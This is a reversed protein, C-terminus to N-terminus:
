SQGLKKGARLFRLPDVADGDIRTEYHLHPGTSRGTSGLKGVVAGAEIREGESVSIASLHGYRTSLGNGHDVEVMNGYGGTYEATVVVGAATVRVPAGYDDRFDIGTHMAISRTFPDLRAGFGSTLDMEGPLPRALPLSSVIQRLREAQLLARQLRDVALGFAGDEGDMPLPVFPGGQNRAESRAPKFRGADLGAETLVGQLRLAQGQAAHEFSSLTANQRAEFGELTAALRKLREGAPVDPSLASSRRPAEKLAPISPSADKQPKPQGDRAVPPFLSAPGGSGRLLPLDPSVRPKEVPAFASAGPPLDAEAQEPGGLPLAAPPTRLLPGAANAQVLAKAAARQPATSALSGAAQAVLTSVIAQRTELQAQRAALEQVKGEFSDQDVLQRSTVRDMRARLAAIRDEYAYRIEAQRLMAGSLLDDRFVLYLTAVLYWIGLLLLTGGVILSATANFTLRRTRGRREFSIVLPAPNDHSPSPISAM